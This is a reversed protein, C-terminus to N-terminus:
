GWGGFNCNGHFGVIHVRQKVVKDNCCSNTACSHDCSCAEATIPNNKSRIQHLRVM